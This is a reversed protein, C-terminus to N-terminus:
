CVQADAAMEIWSRGWWCCPLEGQCVNMATGLATPKRVMSHDAGETPGGAILSALATAADAPATSAPLPNSAAPAAPAAAEGSRTGAAAAAAASTPVVAVLRNFLPVGAPQLCSVFMLCAAWGHSAPCAPPLAECVVPAVAGVLSIGTLSHFDPVQVCM